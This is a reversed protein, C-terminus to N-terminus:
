DPLELKGDPSVEIGVCGVFNNKLKACPRRDFDSASWKLLDPKGYVPTQFFRWLIMHQDPLILWDSEEMGFGVILLAIRDKVSEVKPIVADRGIAHMDAAFTKMAGDSLSAGRFFSLRPQVVPRHERVYQNLWPVSLVLKELPPANQLFSDTGVVSGNLYQLVVEDNFFYHPLNSVQLHLLLSPEEPETEEPKRLVSDGYNDISASEITYRSRIASFTGGTQGEVYLVEAQALVANGLAMDIHEATLLGRNTSDEPMLAAVARSIDANYAIAGSPNGTLHWPLMYLCDSSSRANLSSGDELTIDIKVLERYIVCDMCFSHERVFLSPVAKAMVQLDTFTAELAEEHVPRRGIRTGAAIRQAVSSAHAKLWESTVGLDDLNPQPNVPATLAKVLAAILSADVAKDELRYTDGEKRIVINTSAPPSPGSQRAKRNVFMRGDSLVTRTSTIEILRIAPPNQASARSPPWLSLLFVFVYCHRSM